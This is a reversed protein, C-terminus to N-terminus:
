KKELEILLEWGVLNGGLLASGVKSIFRFIKNFRELRDYYSLVPYNRLIKVPQGKLMAEVEKRTFTKTGISEMHNWLVWSLSKWPRLKLLAHKLWFFYALLSHRHYIMIRIKGGPKCVRIIERM